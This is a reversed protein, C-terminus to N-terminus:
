LPGTCIADAGTIKFGCKNNTRVIAGGATADIEDLSLTRIEITRAAAQVLAAASKATFSKMTHRGTRHQEPQQWAPAIQRRSRVVM